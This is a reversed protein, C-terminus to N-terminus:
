MKICNIPFSYAFFLIFLTQAVRKLMRITQKLIFFQVM